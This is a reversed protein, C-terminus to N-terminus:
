SEAQVTAPAGPPPYPNPGDAARDSTSKKARGWHWYGYQCRYVGCRQQPRMEGYRRQAEHLAM